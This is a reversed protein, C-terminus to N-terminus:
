PTVDEVVVDCSRWAVWQWQGAQNKTYFKVEVFYGHPNYTSVPFDMDSSVDWRAYGDGLSGDGTETGILTGGGTLNGGHVFCEAKWEGISGSCDLPASLLAEITLWDVNDFSMADTWIIMAVYDDYNINPNAAKAENWANQASEQPTEALAVSTFLCLAITLLFAKM